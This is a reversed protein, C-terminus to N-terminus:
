KHEDRVHSVFEKRGFAETCVPCRILALKAVKVPTCVVAAAFAKKTMTAPATHDYYLNLAVSKSTATIVQEKSGDQWQFHYQPM